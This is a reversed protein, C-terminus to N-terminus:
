HGSKCFPVVEILGNNFVNAHVYAIKEYISALTQM